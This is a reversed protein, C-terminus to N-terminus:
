LGIDAAWVPKCFGLGDFPWIASISSFAQGRAPRFKMKGRFGGFWRVNFCLKAERRSVHHQM